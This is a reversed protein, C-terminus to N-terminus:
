KGTLMNRHSSPCSSGVQLLEAADPRKEVDVELTCALYDKFIPSILEPNAIKPTGNTAILTLALLPDQILYPPVGELM